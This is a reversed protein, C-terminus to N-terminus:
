NEIVFALPLRYSVKTPIGNKTGPRFDPLSKIIETVYENMSRHLGKVKANIIKGNTDFEFEINLRVKGSLGLKKALDDDFEKIVHQIIFNETCQKRKEFDWKSKCKPALPPNEIQHFDITKNEDIEEEYMDPTAYDVTKIKSENIKVKSPNGNSLKIVELRIMPLTFYIKGASEQHTLFMSYFKDVDTGIFIGDNKIEWKQHNLLLLKMLREDPLSGLEMNFYNYEDFILKSNLLTEEFMELAEEKSVGEFNPRDVNVVKWEGMLYEDNLEQAKASFNVLLAAILLLIFKM